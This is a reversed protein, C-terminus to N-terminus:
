VKNSLPHHLCQERAAAATKSGTARGAAAPGLGNCHLSQVARGALSKSWSHVGTKGEERSPPGQAGCQAPNRAGVELPPNWQIPSGTTLSGEAPETNTLRASRGSVRTGKSTGTRGSSHGSSVPCPADRGRRCRHRGEPTGPTTGQASKVQRVGHLRSHHGVQTALDFVLLLHEGRGRWRPVRRHKCLGSPWSGFFQKSNRHIM